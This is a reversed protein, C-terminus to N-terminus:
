THSGIKVPPNFCFCWKMVNNSENKITHYVNKPAVMVTGPEIAEIVDSGIYLKGFGEMIYIIEEEKIHKHPELKVKPPIVAVGFTMRNSKIGDPGVMPYAERGPLDVKKAKSIHLM